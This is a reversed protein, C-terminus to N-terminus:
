RDVNRNRSINGDDKLKPLCIDSIKGLKAITLRAVNPPFYIVLFLALRMSSKVSLLHKVAKSIMPKEGLM